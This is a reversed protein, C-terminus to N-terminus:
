DERTCSLELGANHISSRRLKEAQKQIEHQQQEMKRLHQSECTNAKSLLNTNEEMLRGIEKMNERNMTKIDKNLTQMESQHEEITKNKEM